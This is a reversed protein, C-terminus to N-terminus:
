DLLDALLSKLQNAKAFSLDYYGHLWNYFAHDTIQIAEAMENYNFDSKIKALKTLWRLNSQKTLNKRKIKM